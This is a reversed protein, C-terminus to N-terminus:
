TYKADRGKALIDIYSALVANRAQTLKCGPKAM